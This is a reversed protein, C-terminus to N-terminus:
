QFIVLPDITNRVEVAATGRASLYNTGSGIEWFKINDMTLWVAQSARIVGGQEEGNTNSISSFM